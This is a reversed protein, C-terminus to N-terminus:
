AGLIRLKERAQAAEPSSPFDNVIKQFFLRADSKNNMQLFTLGIKLLAPPVRDSKPHQQWLDNLAM